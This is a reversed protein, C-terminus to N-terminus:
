SHPLRLTVTTGEGARSSVAMEGGHAEVIKKCIPLGLGTGRAKTSFFPRFLQEHHEAPIGSGTDAVKIVAFDKWLRFSFRIEGGGPMAQTANQLLNWFVQELLAPDVPVVLEAASGDLVSFRIKEFDQQRKALEMVHEILQRLDYMQKEPKWPKAFMLLQRVSEDLRGVQDLIDGMIERREDDPGLSERLIQIAGAMGALPNKIEHAVSAALEGLAALKQAELMERQMRKFDSLDRAVGTYMIRDDFRVESVALHLPFTTGDKRRGEVERGIGIIKADGTRQYNSLYDNHESRYPEPMLLRVNQGIVEDASYGFLREAAPNFSQITGRSDITIIGDVAMEVIARLEAERERLSKEFSREHQPKKKQSPM